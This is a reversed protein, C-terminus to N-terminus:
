PSKVYHKTNGAAHLNYQIRHVLVLRSDVEDSSRERTTLRRDSVKVPLFVPRKNEGFSNEGGDGCVLILQYARHKPLRAINQLFWAARKLL